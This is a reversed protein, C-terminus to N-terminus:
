YSGNSVILSQDDKLRTVSCNNKNEFNKLRNEITRGLRDPFLDERDYHPFILKKTLCAATLDKIGVSNMDPTFFDVVAISQGLIMAGASVGVFVIDQKAMKKFLTDTGSKKLHYLLYYPNGGNIYIVENNELLDPSDFEIDIFDAKSFGMSLLDEKAKIAFKNNHKERSATTIISASKNLIFGNILQMFQRKIEDTYFGNSTLLIRCM